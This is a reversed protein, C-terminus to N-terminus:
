AGMFEVPNQQAVQRYIYWITVLELFNLLFALTGTGPRGEFISIFNSICAIINLVIVTVMVCYNYKTIALWSLILIITLLALIAWGVYLSLTLAAKVFAAQKDCDPKGEMHCDDTAASVIVSMAATAAILSIFLFGLMLSHIVQLIIFVRRALRFNSSNPVEIAM